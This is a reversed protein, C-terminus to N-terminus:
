VSKTKIERFFKFNNRGSQKVAYMAQDAAHALEDLTKGDEPFISIGISAGVSAQKGGPVPIPELLRSIVKQAVVAASDAHDLNELIAVFEDGGFRAVTDSLRVCTLMREAVAKLVADGAEHGLEDNIPKFKDLDVFMIALPKGSREARVIAREVRDIYLNRNPLKTLADHHAMYQIKDQAKKRETIDRIVGTFLRQNGEMMETVTLEIPFVAGNAHQGELERSNELSLANGQTVYAHLHRDHHEAYHSPMLMKVNQGLVQNKPYGFMREGAANISQVNGKQDITIIADRVTGLVNALRQERRRADESARIYNSIDRCEVMYSPVGQDEPTQTLERVLMLVDIPMANLPRLKLPVGTEEEAFADIGLAILDAYDAHIFEALEHGLVAEPTDAGLMSVGAPNIDILRGEKLVGVMNSIARLLESNRTPPLSNTVDKDKEPKRKRLAQPPSGKSSTLPWKISVKTALRL